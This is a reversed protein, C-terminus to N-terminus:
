LRKTDRMGSLKQLREPHEEASNGLSWLSSDLLSRERHRDTQRKRQIIDLQPDRCRNGYAGCSAQRIVVPYLMLWHIYCFINVIM